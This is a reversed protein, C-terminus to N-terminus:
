SHLSDGLRKLADHHAELVGTRLDGHRGVSPRAPPHADGVRTCMSTLLCPRARAVGGHVTLPRVGAKAVRDNWSRNFNRPEIPVGLRAAFVLDASVWCDRRERPTVPSIHVEASCVSM